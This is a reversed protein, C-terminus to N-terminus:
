QEGAVFNIDRFGFKEVKKDHTRLVLHGDPEVMEVFAEFITGNRSFKLWKQFGFLYKFYELNLTEFEQEQLLEFWFEFKDALKKLLDMLEYEKGTENALSTAPVTFNNQNINIGIGIVSATVKDARLTNEILIGAIKKNGALIDNPWKIQVGQVFGSIFERIAIATTKSLYFHDGAKLNEPFVVYSILLNKKAESIWNNGGQGKGSTQFDAMIIAPETLKNGSLLDTAHLNTSNVTDLHILNFGAIKM